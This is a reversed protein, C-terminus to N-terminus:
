PPGAPPDSDPPDAPPSEAAPPLDGPAGPDAGTRVAATLKAKARAFEEDTLQGARHLRRLDELSFGLPLADDAAGSRLRNHRVLLYGILALVAAGVMLLVAQMMLGWVQQHTAPGAAALMMGLRPIM